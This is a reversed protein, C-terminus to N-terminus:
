ATCGLESTLRDIMPAALVGNNVSFASVDGFWKRLGGDRSFIGFSISYPRESDVGPFRAELLGPKGPAATLRVDQLPSPNGVTYLYGHPVYPEGSAVNVRLETIITVGEVRVTLDQLTYPYPLEAPLPDAPPATDGLGLSDWRPRVWGAFDAAATRWQSLGDGGWFSWAFAGAYGLSAMLDMVQPLSYFKSGTAPYEGLVIPRDLGAAEAPTALQEYPELWDYWSFSYYDLHLGQWATMNSFRNSEVTALARTHVHIARTTEDVFDRVVAHPLKVRADAQSNLEQVGWEPEAIVEFAVVRDSTAVHKLLPVVAADLLARRASSNALLAAHGGFQVGGSTCNATWFGSSFLTLVLLIDHRAAIELAADVDAFFYEDLGTVNGDSDFEPSYRGDSFVRWKVIKIGQARMNAFDIDVEQYTTPESVGSHGWGGTGFDQGTKWPYNVGAWFSTQQSLLPENRPTAQRALWAGVGGIAFPAALAAALVKRRTLM